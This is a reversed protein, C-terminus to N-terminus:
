GNIVVEFSNDERIRLRRHKLFEKFEITSIPDAAEWVKIDEGDESTIGFKGTADEAWCHVMWNFKNGGRTIVQVPIATHAGGMEIILSGIIDQLRITMSLIRETEYVLEPGM